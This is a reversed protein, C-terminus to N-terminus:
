ELRMKTGVGLQGKEQGVCKSLERGDWLSTEEGEDSHSNTSM